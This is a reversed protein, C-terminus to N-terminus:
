HQFTLKCDPQAGPDIAGGVQNIMGNIVCKFGTGPVEVGAPCDFRIREFPIEPFNFIMFGNNGNSPLTGGSVVVRIRTPNDAPTDYDFLTILAGVNYLDYPGGLFVIRSAPDSPDELPLFQSGPFSVPAAYDVSLDIGAVNGSSFTSSSTKFTVTVDLTGGAPCTVSEIQCTPSCGDGAVTNGDDCQEGPRNAPNTQIVGDGCTTFKCDSNCTPDDKVPSSSGKQSGPDCEEVGAEVEGDGCRAKQCKDTCAGTPSNAPGADCGEGPDVTGNGCLQAQQDPRAGYTAIALDHGTQTASAIVCDPLPACSGVDPGSLGHCARAIARSRSRAKPAPGLCTPSILGFSTATRDIARQCAVSRALIQRVIKTRQKGITRICRRKAASGAPLASGQLVTTSRNILLQVQPGVLNITGGGKVAAPYNAVIEPEQICWANTIGAAFTQALSFGTPAAPFPGPRLVQVQNCPLPSSAEAFCQDVFTLGHKVLGQVTNGIHNRCQLNSSRPPVQARSWSGFPLISALCTVALIVATRKM